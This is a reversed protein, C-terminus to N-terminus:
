SMCPKSCPDSCTPTNAIASFLTKCFFIIVFNLCLLLIQVSTFVPLRYLGIFWSATKYLTIISPMISCSSLFFSSFRVFLPNNTIEGWCCCLRNSACVMLLHLPLSYTDCTLSLSELTNESSELTEKFFKLESGKAANCQVFRQPNQLM